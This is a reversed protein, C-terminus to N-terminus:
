QEVTGLAPEKDDTAKPLIVPASRQAAARDLIASATEGVLEKKIRAEYMLDDIYAKVSAIAEDTYESAVVNSSVNPTSAGLQIMAVAALAKRIANQLAVENALRVAILDREELPLDRIARLLQETVLADVSINERQALTLTASGKVAADILTYM